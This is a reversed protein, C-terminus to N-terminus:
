RPRVPLPGFLRRTNALVIAALAAPSAVDAQRLAYMVEFVRSLLCPEHRAKVLCGAQFREAKVAAPHPRLVGAHRAAAGAGV